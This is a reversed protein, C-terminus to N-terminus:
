VPVLAHVKSINPVFVIRRQVRAKYRRSNPHIRTTPTSGDIKLFAIDRWGFRDMAGDMSITQVTETKEMSAAAESGAHIIANLESHSSTSFQATGSSHSVAYRLVKVNRFNNLVISAELFDATQPAPEFSWVTATPGVLQAISLTYVGFNAGIDIVNEGPQIIKRVFKIEDEFWDEQEYLVYSTICDLVDPVIIKVGDVLQQVRTNGLKQMADTTFPERWQPRLRRM